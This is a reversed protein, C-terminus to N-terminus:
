GCACREICWACFLCGRRRSAASDLSGDSWELLRVVGVGGCLSRPLGLPVGAFPSSHVFVSKWVRRGRCELGSSLIAGARVWVSGHCLPRAGARRRGNLVSEGGRGLLSVFYAGERSDRAPGSVRSDRLHVPELGSPRRVARSSKCACEGTWWDVSGVGRESELRRRCRPSQSHESGPYVLGWSRKGELLSM